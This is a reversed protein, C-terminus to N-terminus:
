SQLREYLENQKEQRSIDKHHRISFEIGQPMTAFSDFGVLQEHVKGKWYIKKSNKYIRTQYDPYNVVPLKYSVTLYDDINSPASCGLVSTLGFDGERSPRESLLLNKDILFQYPESSKKLPCEETFGDFSSINWKWKDVHRQTLRSVTNIRPVRYAEVQPNELIMFPISLMMGDSFYEDADLNVIWDGLCNNNLVNKQLAFDNRFSQFFLRTFDNTNVIKQLSEIFGENSGDNLIVFEFDIDLKKTLSQFNNISKIISNALKYFQWEDHTCVAYSILM